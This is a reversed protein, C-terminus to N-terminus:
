EKDIFKIYIENKKSEGVITNTITTGNEFSVKPNDVISVTYTVEYSNFNIGDNNQVVLDFTPSVYLTNNPKGQVTITPNSVKADFYFASSSINTDYNKTLIYKAYTKRGIIAFVITIIIFIIIKIIRKNKINIM